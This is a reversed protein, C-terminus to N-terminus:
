TQQSPMDPATTQNVVIRAYRRGAPTFFRGETPWIREDAANRRKGSVGCRAARRARASHVSKAGDFPDIIGETPIVYGAAGYFPVGNLSSGVTFQEYGSSLADQEAVDLLQMGIGRRAWNPHVFVAKIHATKPENRHPMWTSFGVVKSDFVAVFSQRQSGAAHPGGDKSWDAWAELAERPYFGRAFARIADM